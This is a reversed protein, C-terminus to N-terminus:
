PREPFEGLEVLAIVERRRGIEKAEACAPNPHDCDGEDGFAQAESMPAWLLDARAQGGWPAGWHPQEKACIPPMRTPSPAVCGPGGCSLTLLSALRSLRQEPGGAASESGWAMPNTGLTAPNQLSRAPPLPTRGCITVPRLLLPSATPVWARGAARGHDSRCGAGAGAEPREERASSSTM